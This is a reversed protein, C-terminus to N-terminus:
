DRCRSRHFSGFTGSRSRTGLAALGIGMLLATSPEPVEVINFQGLTAGFRSGNNVTLQQGAALGAMSVFFQESTENPAFGQFICANGGNTESSCAGALSLNAASSPVVGAGTITLGTGNLLTRQVWAQLGFASQPELSIEFIATWDTASVSGDLIVGGSPLGTTLAILSTSGVYQGNGVNFLTTTHDVSLGHSANASLVLVAASLLGIVPRRQFARPM